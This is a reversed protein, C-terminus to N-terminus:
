ETAKLHELIHDKTTETGKREMVSSFSSYKGIPPDPRLVVHVM